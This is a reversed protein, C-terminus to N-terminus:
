FSCTQTTAWPAAGTTRSQGKLLSQRAEDLTLPRAGDTAAALRSGYKTPAIGDRRAILYERLDEARSPDFDFDAAQLHSIFREVPGTLLDDSLRLEAPGRPGDFSIVFDGPGGGHERRDHRRV